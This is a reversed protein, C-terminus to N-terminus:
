VLSNEVPVTGFLYWMFYVNPQFLTLQRMRKLSLKVLCILGISFITSSSGALTGCLRSMPSPLRIEHNKSIEHHM